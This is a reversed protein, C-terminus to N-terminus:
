TTATSRAQTRRRRAIIYLSIPLVLTVADAAIFGITIYFPNNDLYNQQIIFIPYQLFSFFGSLTRIAGYVSVFHEAPFIIAVVASGVGFLLSRMILIFVFTLYQLELSPILLCISYGLSALSTLALPLCSDQLDAFAKRETSGGKNRCSRWLKNRDMLLGGLPGVILVMFQTISFVNLYSSAVSEDGGALEEIFYNITGFMFLMDLELFMQWVLLLWFPVSCICSLLSGYGLDNKGEPQNREEGTPQPESDIEQAPVVNHNVEETKSKMPITTEEHDGAETTKMDSVVGNETAVTEQISIEDKNLHDANADEKERPKKDSGEREEDVEFAENVFANKYTEAGMEAQQDDSSHETLGRCGPLRYNNPLPWPIFTRPLCLATNIGMLAVSAAMLFFFVDFAFGAEYVTKQILFIIVSGSYMSNVISIATSRQSPFLNGVQMSSLLLLAGGITFLITAPFLLASYEASSFAMLLYGSLILLSAVLRSLLTGFRDFFYGVPFMCVPQAATALSYVLQLQSDQEPCSAIVAGGTQINTAM